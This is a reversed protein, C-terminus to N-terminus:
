DIELRNHNNQQHKFKVKGGYIMRQRLKYYLIGTIFGISSVLGMAPIGCSLDVIVVIFMIALILTAIKMKGILLLHCDRKGIACFAAGMVGAVAGVNDFILLREPLLPYAALWGLAGSLFFLIFLHFSSWEHELPRAFLALMMLAWIFNIIGPTTVNASFLKLYWFNVGPGIAVYPLVEPVFRLLLFFVVTMGALFWVVYLKRWSYGALFHEIQVQEFGDNKFMEAM